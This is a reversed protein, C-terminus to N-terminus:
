ERGVGVLGWNREVWGVRVEGDIPLNSEKLKMPGAVGMTEIRILSVHKVSNRFCRYTEDM